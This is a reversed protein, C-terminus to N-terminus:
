PVPVDAAPRGLQCPLGLPSDLVLLVDDVYVWARGELEKVGLLVPSVGLLPLHLGVFDVEPLLQLLPESL